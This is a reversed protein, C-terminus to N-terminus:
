ETYTLKSLYDAVTKNTREDDFKRLLEIIFPAPDKYQTEVIGEILDDHRAM